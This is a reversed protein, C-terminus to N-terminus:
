IILKILGWISGLGYILHLAAFIIPMVFLYKWDKERFAIQISFYINILLYLGVIGLLLWLFILSFVSLATLGILSLVFALPVLHRWSFLVRGFKLPYTVWLGNDFNHKCFESFDSRTYYYSVIDPVLLIKGRSKKLKSNIAMDESRAINEDYLGIRDFVEKRYCGSFATDAWIPNKSGIRFYSNGVGFPSSLCLTISKGLITNKRPVMKIMGGVNDANYEYLYKVCKSIYHEEYSSHADIKMIIEGKANQIGINMAAPIIKKPNDLLKIFSYKQVYNRVIERTRDESIGDVVFVELRDKPYDNAIISDLCKGIYEEENRCPIITTIIIKEQTAM